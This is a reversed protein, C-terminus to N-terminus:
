PHALAQLLFETAEGDARTLLRVRVPLHHRAPDLWVDVHTDYPREAERRFHVADSVTGAPLELTQPGLSTFTWVGAQGRAGAVFLQLQRGADGLAPSAALVAPLQLLWSLRDQAGPWLPYEAAPGSFTIRGSDRQFNAARVERGRRTEVHREPALGHADLEGVSAWGAAALGLTLTYRGAEEPRWRLEAQVGTRGPGERQVAYQLTTAPALRTAYVPLPEGGSDARTASPLAAAATAASATAAPQTTRPAPKRAAPTPSAPARAVPAAEAAAVEAVPAAPLTIQRVRLLRPADGPGGPGPQPPLAGLLWAHLLLVFLGLGALALARRPRATFM